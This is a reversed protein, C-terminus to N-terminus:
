STKTKTTSNSGSGSSTPAKTTTTITTTKTADIKKTIKPATNLDRLKQERDAAIKEQASIVEQGIPILETKKDSSLAEKKDAENKIFFVGLVAIAL